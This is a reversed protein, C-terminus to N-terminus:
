GYRSTLVAALAVAAYSAVSQLAAGRSLQSGLLPQETYAPRANWKAAAMSIGLRTCCCLGFLVSLGFVFWLSILDSSERSPATDAGVRCLLCSGATICSSVTRCM